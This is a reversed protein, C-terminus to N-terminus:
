PVPPFDIEPHESSAGPECARLDFFARGIRDPDIPTSHRILNALDPLFMHAPAVDGAEPVEDLIDYTVNTTFFEFDQRSSRSPIQSNKEKVWALNTRGDTGGQWPLFWYSRASEKVSVKLALGTQWDGSRPVSIFKATVSPNGRLEYRADVVSCQAMSAALLFPLLMNPYM